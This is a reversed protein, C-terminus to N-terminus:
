DKKQQKYITIGLEALLILVEIKLDDNEAVDDFQRHFENTIHKVEGHMEEKIFKKIKNIDGCNRLTDRMDNLEEWLRYKPDDPSIKEDDSENIYLKEINISKVLDESSFESSSKTESTSEDDPSTESDSIHNSYHYHEKHEQQKQSM